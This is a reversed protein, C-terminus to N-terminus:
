QGYSKLLRDVDAMTEADAREEKSIKAVATVLDEQLNLINMFQPAEPEICNSKYVTDEDAGESFLRM